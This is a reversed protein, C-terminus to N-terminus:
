EDTFRIGLVDNMRMMNEASIGTIGRLYDYVLSRSMHKELQVHLWAINRKRRKLAERVAVRHDRWKAM